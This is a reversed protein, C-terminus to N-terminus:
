VLKVIRSSIPNGSDDLEQYLIDLTMNNDKCYQDRTVWYAKVTDDAKYADYDEQSSFVSILTKSLKNPSIHTDKFVIKGTNIYNAQQYATLEETTAPFKAVTNLRQMIATVRLQNAM